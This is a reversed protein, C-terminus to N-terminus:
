ESNHMTRRIERKHFLAMRAEPNGDTENMVFGGHKPMVNGTTGRRGNEITRKKPVGSLIRIRRIFHM